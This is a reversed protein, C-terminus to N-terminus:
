DDDRRPLCIGVRGRDAPSLDARRCSGRAPGVVAPLVRRRGGLICKGGSVSQHRDGCGPGQAEGDSFVASPNYGMVTSFEKQTVHYTGLFYPKTIIVRHQPTMCELEALNMRLFRM